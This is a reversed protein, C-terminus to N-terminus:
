SKLYSVYTIDEGFCCYRNRLWTIVTCKVICLKVKLSIKCHLGILDLGIISM